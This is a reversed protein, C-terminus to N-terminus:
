QLVGWYKMRAAYRRTLAERRHINRLQKFVRWSPIQYYETELRRWEKVYRQFEELFKISDIRTM